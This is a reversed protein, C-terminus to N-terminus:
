GAVPALRRHDHSRYNGRSGQEKGDASAAIRRGAAIV